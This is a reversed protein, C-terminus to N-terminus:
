VFVNMCVCDCEGELWGVTNVILAAGNSSGAHFHQILRRVLALYFEVDTAPTASGFFVADDFGARQHSFPM